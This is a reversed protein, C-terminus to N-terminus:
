RGTKNIICHVFLFRTNKNKQDFHDFHLESFIAVM